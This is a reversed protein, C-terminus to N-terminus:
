ERSLAEQVCRLLTESRFPKRLIEAKGSPLHGKDLVDFSYGSMLLVRMRPFRAAIETYVDGGSKKPMVVDLLVLSIDPCHQALMETAEEGDKALLVRYGARKLIREALFRM